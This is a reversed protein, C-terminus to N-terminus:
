RQPVSMVIYQGAHQTPAGYVHLPGSLPGKVLSAACSEHFFLRLSQGKEETVEQCPPLSPCM